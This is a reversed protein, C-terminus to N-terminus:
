DTGPPDALVTEQVDAPLAKLVTELRQADEEMGIWRLKRIMKVLENSSRQVTSVDFHGDFPMKM